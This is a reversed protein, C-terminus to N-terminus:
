GARAFTRTASGRRSASPRFSLGLARIVSPLMLGQGVLTVLIVSFTLFFILARDPFTQGNAITFPIALAAALSVIGRVGTFALVFPVEWPPSPDQAQDRSFALAASVNRSVDV